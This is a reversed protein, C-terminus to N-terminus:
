HAEHDGDVIEFDERLFRAQCGILIWVTRHSEYLHAPMVLVVLTYAGTM